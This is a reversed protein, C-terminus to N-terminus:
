FVGTDLMTNDTNEMNKSLSLIDRLNERLAVEFIYKLVFMGIQLRAEGKIEDDRLATLDQLEYQFAPWYPRLAEDGDFLEGFDTSINWQTRGHYVVIPIIPRLPEGNRQDREWIRIIYRLLQFPTNPDPYSKHEMLAYLYAERGNKLEISYLLDSFHEQLDTDVFSGSQLATNDLDLVATVTETM